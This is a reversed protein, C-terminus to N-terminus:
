EVPDTLDLDPAEYVGIYYCTFHPLKRISFQDTAAAKQMADLLAKKTVQVWGFDSDIHVQDAREKIIRRATTLDVIIPEWGEIKPLPPKPM